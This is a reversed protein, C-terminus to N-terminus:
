RMTEEDITVQAADRLFRGVSSAQPYFDTIKSPEGLESFDYDIAHAMTHHMRLQSIVLAMQLNTPMEIGYRRCEYEVGEKIHDILTQGNIFRDKHGTYTM